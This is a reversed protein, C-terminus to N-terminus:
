RSRRSAHITSSASFRRGSSDAPDPVLRRSLGRAQHHGRDGARVAACEVRAQAARRQWGDAGPGGPPLGALVPLELADGRPHSRAASLPRLEEDGHEAGTQRRAYAPGARRLVPLGVRVQGSGRRRSQGAQGDRHDDPPGVRRARSRPDGRSAAALRRARRAPDPPLDPVDQAAHAIKDDLETDTLPDFTRLTEGTAPNITAIPM